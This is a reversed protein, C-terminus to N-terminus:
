SNLKHAEDDVRCDKICAIANGIHQISHHCLPNPWLIASRTFCNCHHLEYAATSCETWEMIPQVAQLEISIKIASNGRMAVLTVIAALADPAVRYWRNYRRHVCLM